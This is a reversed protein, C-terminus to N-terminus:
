ANQITLPENYDVFYRMPWNDEFSTISVVDGGFKLGIGVSHKVFYVIGGKYPGIGIMLKPFPKVEVEKQENHLTVNIM